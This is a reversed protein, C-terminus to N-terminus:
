YRVYVGDARRGFLWKSSQDSSFKSSARANRQNADYQLPLSLSPLPFSKNAVIAQLASRRTNHHAEPSTAAIIDILLINSYHKECVIYSPYFDTGNHVALRIDSLLEEAKGIEERIASIERYKLYIELDFQHDIIEKIKERKEEDLM